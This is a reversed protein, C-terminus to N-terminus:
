KVLVMKRTMSQGEANLTYFYVGSSLQSADFVVSHSGTEVTGDVLTAVKRGSLDYVALSVQATAELSFEITTTPNFPNPFNQALDFAVPLESADAPLCESVCLQYNGYSSGYGDVAISYVGAPLTCCEIHSRLGAECFAGSDDDNGAVLVGDADFVGLATDYDSGCLSFTYDGGALDVQYFVDRSAGTSIASYFNRWECLIASNDYGGTNDVYCATSGTVCDGVNMPIANEATEGPLLAQTVTLTGAGANSSYGGVEVLYSQGGVVPLTVESQLGCFDDNYALEVYTDCGCGDFVRIKTDYSSGCLSFTVEGDCPQSYCYWVNPGYIDGGPGDPTADSTNFPIEGVSLTAANACDDNEPIPSPEVCTATATFDGENAVGYGTLVVWYTGALMDNLTLKPMLGCDSSDDNNSYVPTVNWEPCGPGAYIYAYGDWYPEPSCFDIVVDTFDLAVDFRMVADPGANRFGYDTGGITTGEYPVGCLLTGAGDCATLIASGEYAPNWGNGTEQEYTGSNKKQLIIQDIDLALVPSVIGAICVTILVSKMTSM